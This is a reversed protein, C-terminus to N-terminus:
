VKYSGKKVTGNVLIAVNAYDNVGKAYYTVLFRDTADVLFNKRAPVHPPMMAVKNSEGATKKNTAKKKATAATAAAPKIKPSM